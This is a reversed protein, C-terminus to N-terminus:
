PSDSYLNLGVCACVQSAYACNHLSASGDSCRCTANSAQSLGDAGEAVVSVHEGSFSQSDPWHVSHGSAHRRHVHAQTGSGEGGEAASSSNGDANGSTRADVAGAAASAPGGGCADGLGVSGWRRGHGRARVLEESLTRTHRGGWSHATGSAAEGM